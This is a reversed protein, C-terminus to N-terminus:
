NEQMPPFKKKKKFTYVITKKEFYWIEWIKIIKNNKIKKFQKAPSKNQVFPETIDLNSYWKQNKPFSDM